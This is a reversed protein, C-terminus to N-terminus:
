LWNPIYFELSLMKSIIHVGFQHVGKWQQYLCLSTSLFFSGKMDVASGTQSDTHIIAWMIKEYM